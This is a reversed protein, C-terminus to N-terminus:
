LPKYRVSMAANHAQEVPTGPTTLNRAQTAAAFARPANRPPMPGNLYPGWAWAEGLYCMACTSDRKQAERFSRAADEPTFSFLLQVGQDYFAQAERSRTTVRWSYPGLGVTYLRMPERFSAPLEVTDRQQAAAPGVAACSVLVLAARVRWHTSTM